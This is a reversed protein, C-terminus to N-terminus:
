EPAQELKEKKIGKSKTVPTNSEGNAPDHNGVNHEIDRSM